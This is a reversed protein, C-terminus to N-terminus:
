PKLLARISCKNARMHCQADCPNNPPSGTSLQMFVHMCEHMQLLKPLCTCYGRYPGYSFTGACTHAAGVCSSLSLSSTAPSLPSTPARRVRLFHGHAVVRLVSVARITNVCMCTVIHYRKLQAVMCVLQEYHSQVQNVISCFFPHTNSLSHYWHHRGDGNTAKRMQM